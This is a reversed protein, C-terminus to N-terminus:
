FNASIWLPEQHSEASIRAALPGLPGLPLQVAALKFGDDICIDRTHLIPVPAALLIMLSHTVELAFGRHSRTRASQHTRIPHESAKQNKLQRNLSHIKTKLSFASSGHSFKWRSFRATVSCM